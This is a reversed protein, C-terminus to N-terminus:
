QRWADGQRLSMVLGGREDGDFNYMLQQPIDRGLAMWEERTRAINHQDSREKTM